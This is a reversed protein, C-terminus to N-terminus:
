NLCSSLIYKRLICKTPVQRMTKSKFFTDEDESLSYLEEWFPLVRWDFDLSGKEYEYIDTIRQSAKRHKPSHWHGCKFTRDGCNLIWFGFGYGGKCSPHVLHSWNKRNSRGCCIKIPIFCTASQKNGFQQPTWYCTSNRGAWFQFGQTETEMRSRTVRMVQQRHTTFSWKVTIRPIM